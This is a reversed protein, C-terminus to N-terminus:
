SSFLCAKNKEGFFLGGGNHNAFPQDIQMIVLMSNVDAQLPSLTTFRAITSIVNPATRVFNVFIIKKKLNFFFTLIKKGVGNQNFNPHFALGLLGM